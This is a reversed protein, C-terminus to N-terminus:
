MYFDSFYGKRILIAATTFTQTTPGGRQPFVKRVFTSVSVTLAVLEYRGM